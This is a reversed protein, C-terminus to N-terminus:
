IEREIYIYIYPYLVDLAFSGVRNTHGCDLSMGHLTVYGVLNRVAIAFYPIVERVTCISLTYMTMTAAYNSNKLNVSTPLVHKLMEKCMDMVM